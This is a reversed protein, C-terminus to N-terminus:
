SPARRSDTVFASAAERLSQDKRVRYSRIGENALARLVGDANEAAGFSHADIVMAASQIGLRGLDRLAEVWSVDTSSTIAVVSVDRQLSRREAALADALPVSGVSRIVALTELIKTLQRYGRDSQIVERRRAHALLGVARDQDLFHKALSAAMAVAYEETSPSILLPSKTLVAPLDVEEDEMEDPLYGAQVSSQMDLFLWVDAIPDSEFEKVILRSM